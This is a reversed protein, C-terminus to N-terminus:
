HLSKKVQTLMQNVASIKGKLLRFGGRKSQTTCSKGKFLLLAGSVEGHEEGGWGLIASLM